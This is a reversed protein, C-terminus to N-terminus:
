VAFTRRSSTAITKAMQAGVIYALLDRDAATILTAVSCGGRTADLSNVVEAYLEPLEPVGLFIASRAGLLRYRRFYHYRGTVVLCHTLGDAFEQRVRPLAKREDTYESASLFLSEPDRRGWDTALLSNRLRVYLAYDPVFLVTGTTDMEALTLVMKVARAVLAERAAAPTDADVREVV